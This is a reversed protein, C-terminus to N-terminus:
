KNMHSYFCKGTLRIFCERVAIPSLDSWRKSHKYLHSTKSHKYLHSTKNHQTPLPKNHKYLHSTKGDRACKKNNMEEVRTPRLHDLIPIVILPPGRSSHTSASHMCAHTHATHTYIHRNFVHIYMHIQTSSHTKM